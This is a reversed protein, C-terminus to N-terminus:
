ACKSSMARIEDLMNKASKMMFQWDGDCSIWSIGQDIWKQVAAPDYGTSHGVPIHKKMGAQFITEIASNVDPHGSQGPLNMSLSLDGPGVTISDIGPVSVINDIDKIADIHEIQLIVMMQEDVQALYDSPCTLGYRVGRSPGFGRVGRPPYRCSRVAAEARKASDIRPVIIGAPHLELIPKVVVPDDSPVRIWAATGSARAAHVHASADAITMASHEMDIWVFDYGAEGFLESIAADALSASTGVCLQGKSWKERIRPTHNM